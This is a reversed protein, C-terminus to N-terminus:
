AESAELFARGAAELDRRQSRWDCRDDLCPSELAPWAREYLGVLRELEGASPAGDARSLQEPLGRLLDRHNEFSGVVYTRTLRDEHRFRLTAAAALFSSAADATLKQYTTPTPLCGTLVLAVAALGLGPLM